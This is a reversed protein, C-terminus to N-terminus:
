RSSGSVLYADFADAASLGHMEAADAPSLPPIVLETARQHFPRGYENLADMMALDSGVCTLLTPKRSLERDFIKQLTGEFGADTRILYPMEDLVVVSPRDEPLCRALLRLAAAVGSGQHHCM